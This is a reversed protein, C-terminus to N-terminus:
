RRRALAALGALALLTLTAPEPIQILFLRNYANADGTGDPDFEGWGAIWGTDSVAGANRLVWGSAPDILDNLDVAVNDLGWCTAHQGQDVGGVYKNAYGVALGADNIAGAFAATSGSGDTGLDGLETAATTGADWRVARDGMLVGGVFKRAYGVAAGSTNIKYAGSSSAGSGDTGLVDLETAATGGADWRVARAGLSTGGVYKTAFGVIVGTSNIGGAKSSTVGSGDTGLNDLEIATTTGAAWRVAREGLPTDGVHKVAYGAVTGTDNIVYAYAETQGTPDLGLNGLETAATGGADWRVARFGRSQSNVCKTVGGVGTGSANLDVATGQTYGLSDTGLNGLETPTTSGADWRTPRQGVYHVVDFKGSYGVCMGTANIGLASGSSWGLGDVGLSDLEVAPVSASWRVARNGVDAGSVYKEAGGVALGANNVEEAWNGQYGTSTVADYTPGGYVPLYGQAVSALAALTGLWVIGAITARHIM